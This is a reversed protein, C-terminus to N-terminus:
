IIIIFFFSGQCLAPALLSAIAFTLVFMTLNNRSGVKEISYFKALDQDDHGQVKINAQLLQNKKPPTDRIREPM